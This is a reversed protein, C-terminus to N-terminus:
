TPYLRKAISDIYVLLGHEKVPHRQTVRLFFRSFLCFVQYGCLVGIMNMIADNIDIGRYNLGVLLCMGLQAFEISVGVALALLPIKRVRAPVIFNILFGFPMTLLINAVVERIFIFAPSINKFQSYDFPIRNIRSLIFFASQRSLQRESFSRIPIPFLTLSVVLIIYLWFLSFFFRYAPNSKRYVLRGWMLTLLVTSFILPFPIFELM